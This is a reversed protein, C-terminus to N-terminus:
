GAVDYLFAGSPVFVQWDGTWGARERQPCDTPIDCANDRFSWETIEHFRNVRVDSCRFWGRRELDTHVVVGSVDAPTLRRPHGEIRVYQFGHTTHRPEFVDGDVGASTVRDIQYAPAAEMTVFNFGAIHDTTVDGDPALAEGHSLTITTGAPGLDTLRVWGNINQGLDVVQVEPRPRTVAVPRITEVRRVPPAPSITLQAVGHDVVAAPHWDRPAVRHDEMQGAMLDAALIPGTASEWGDGTAIVADGVHLQGLFAVMDGYCDALQPFGNKGRYWGDSLVVDWANAGEVLLAGVAYTQVDLNNPYSTTGPALELDGVRTGNLFTEYIGHATPYLRAQADVRDLDFARRLIYAPRHGPEAREPEYPEIWRAVWDAADLLGTEFWAPTSWDSEGLDTWVKVRWDVRRRSSLPEAGWPVLVCEARGLRGSDWVGAEIRYALQERAGDPLWWSLRPRREGIGLAAAGLHEVRLHRPASMPACGRVSASGICPIGQM